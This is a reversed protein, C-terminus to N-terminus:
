KLFFPNDKLLGTLILYLRPSYVKPKYQFIFGRLPHGLLEAVTGYFFKIFRYMWSLFLFLDIFSGFSFRYCM